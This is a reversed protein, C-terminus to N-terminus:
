LKTVVYDDLECSGQRRLMDRVEEKSPEGNFWAEIQHDDGGALPHVWASVLHTFGRQKYREIRKALKAEEKKRDKEFLKNLDEMFCAECQGKRNTEVTAPDFAPKGCKCCPVLRVRDLMGQLDDQTATDFRKSEHTLFANGGGALQVEVQLPYGKYMWSCPSVQLSLKSEGIERTLVARGLEGPANARLTNRLKDIDNM